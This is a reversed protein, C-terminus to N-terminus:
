LCLGKPTRCIRNKITISAFVWQLCMNKLRMEELPVYERSASSRRHFSRPASTGLASTRRPLHERAANEKWEPFIRRSFMNEPFIHGWIMWGPFYGGGCVILGHVSVRSFIHRSLHYNGGSCSKISKTCVCEYVFSNNVADIWSKKAMSLIGIWIVTRFFCM